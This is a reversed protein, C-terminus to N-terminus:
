LFYCFQGFARRFIQCGQLNTQRLSKLQASSIFIYFLKCKQTKNEAELKALHATTNGVGLCALNTSRGFCRRKFNFRHAYFFALHFVDPFYTSPTTLNRKLRVLESRGFCRRRREDTLNREPRAPHFAESFYTRPLNLRTIRRDDM